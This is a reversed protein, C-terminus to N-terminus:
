VVEEVGKRSPSTMGPLIKDVHRGNYFLKRFECEELFQHVTNQFLTSGRGAILTSNAPSVERTWPFELDVM